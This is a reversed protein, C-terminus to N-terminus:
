APVTARSAKQSYNRLQAAIEEDSQGDAKMAKIAIAQNETVATAFATLGDVGLQAHKRAASSRIISWLSASETTM